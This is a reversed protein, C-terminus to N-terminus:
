LYDIFNGDKDCLICLDDTPTTFLYTEEATNKDIYVEGCFFLQRDNFTTQVVVDPSDLDESM